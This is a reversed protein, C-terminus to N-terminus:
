RKLGEIRDLLRRNYMRWDHKTIVDERAKRGLERALEKDKYIKFIAEALNEPSKEECILGNVGDTFIEGQQGVGTAVVPKAMSMYEFMKVPSNFFETQDENHVCPTTLVDCASMYVPIMNYPVIGTLICNNEM